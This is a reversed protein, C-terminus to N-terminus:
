PKLKTITEPKISRGYIFRATWKEAIDSAKARIL